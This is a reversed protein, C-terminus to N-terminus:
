APVQSKEKTRSAFDKTKDRGVWRERLIMDHTAVESSRLDNRSYDTSNSLNEHATTNIYKYNHKYNEHIYLIIFFKHFGLM